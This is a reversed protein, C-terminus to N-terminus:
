WDRWVCQLIITSVNEESNGPILMFINVYNGDCHHSLFHDTYGDNDIEGFVNFFSRQFTKRITVQISSYFPEFKLSTPVSIYSKYYVCISKLKIFLSMYFSELDWVHKDTEIHSETYTHIYQVKVWVLLIM